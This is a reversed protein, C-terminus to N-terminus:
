IRYFAVANDHFLKKQDTESFGGAAQKMGTCLDDYSAWMRELPFNSGYLCRDIGFLDVCTDTVFTLQEVTWSQSLLALGSIKVWLNDHAALAKLGARWPEIFEERGLPLMGAHVLIVRTDPYTELLSKASGLQEPQFPFMQLEFCLDHAGLLSFGDLFADSAVLDPRPAARWLETEHWFVQHRLGRMNAHAMHGEILDKAEGPRTLDAFGVIGHPFGAEDAVSQLWATEDVPSSVGWNAQIHVSKVVNNGDFDARLDDVSYDQRLPEYDGFMKPTPEAVLWPYNKVQWIHHHADIVPGDYM